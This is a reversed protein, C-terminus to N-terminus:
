GLNAGAVGVIEIERRGMDVIIPPASINYILDRYRIRWKATIEAARPSWFVRFRAVSRAIVQGGILQEQGAVTTSPDMPEIKAWLRISMEEPFDVVEEGTENRTELPEDCRIRHVCEGPQLPKM